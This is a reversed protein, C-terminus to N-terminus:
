PTFKIPVFEGWEIKKLCAKFADEPTIYDKVSVMLFSKDHASGYTLTCSWLMHTHSQYLEEVHWGNPILSKWINIPTSYINKRSWYGDSKKRFFLGFSKIVFFIRIFEGVDPM